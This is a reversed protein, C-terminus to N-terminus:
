SDYGLPFHMGGRTLDGDLLEQLPHNEDSQNDHSNATRALPLDVSEYRQFLQSEMQDSGSIARALKSALLTVLAATFMPDYEAPADVLQVYSLRVAYANVVLCRKHNVRRLDFKDIRGAGPFEVTQLKLFDSPLAFANSWGSMETDMPTTISVTGVATPDVVAWGTALEPRSVSVASSLFFPTTPFGIVNLAIEWATGSWRLHPKTLGGVKRLWSPRANYDATPAYEGAVNAPATAGTVFRSYTVDAVEAVLDVTTTAFSWFHARLIEGLAQSYHISCQRAAKSAPDDISSILTEGIKSLALNAIDTKTM